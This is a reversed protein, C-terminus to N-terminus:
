SKLDVQQLCLVGCIAGGWLRLCMLLVLLNNAERFHFTNLVTLVGYGGFKILVGALLMSCSVPAEAHVKPLWSHVSFLPLKVLFPIVLVLFFVRSFRRSFLSGEFYCYVSDRGMVERIILIFVLMPLSTSVTYMVTYVVAQVREPQHGWGLVMVIIPLLSGEFFIYINLWSARLFFATSLGLLFIISFSYLYSREISHKKVCFFRIGGM